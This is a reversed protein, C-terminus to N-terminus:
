PSKKKTPPYSDISWEGNEDITVLLSTRRPLSGPPRLVMRNIQSKDFPPSSGSGYWWVVTISDSSNGWGVGSGGTYNAGSSGRNAEVLGQNEVWIDSASKNQFLVGGWYHPKPIFRPSFFLIWVLLLGQPISHLMNRCRNTYLFTSAVISVILAMFSAFLIAIGQALLGWPESPTPAVISFLLLYAILTLVCINRGISTQREM